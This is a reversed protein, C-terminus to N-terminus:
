NYLVFTPLSIASQGSASSEYMYKQFLRDLPESSAVFM